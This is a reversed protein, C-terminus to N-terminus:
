PPRVGQEAGTGADICGPPDRPRPPILSPRASGVRHGTPPCCPQWSHCGLICHATQLAQPRTGVSFGIEDVDDNGGRLGRAGARVQLHSTAGVAAAPGGCFSCSDLVGSTAESPAATSGLQASAGDVGPQRLVRRCVDNECVIQGGHGFGQVGISGARELLSKSGVFHSAGGPSSRGDESSGLGPSVSRRTPGMGLPLGDANSPCSSVLCVVGVVIRVRDVRWYGVRRRTRAQGRLGDRLCGDDERPPQRPPISEEGQSTRHAGAAM